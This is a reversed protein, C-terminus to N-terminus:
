QCHLGSETEKKGEKKEGRRPKSVHPAVDNEHFITTFVCLLSTPINYEGLMLLSLMVMLFLTTSGADIPYPFLVPEHESFTATEVNDYNLLIQLEVTNIMSTLM